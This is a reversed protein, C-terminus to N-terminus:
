VVLHSRANQNLRCSRISRRQSLRRSRLVRKLDGFGEEAKAVM